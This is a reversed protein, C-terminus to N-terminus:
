QPARQTHRLAGGRQYWTKKTRAAAAPRGRPQVDVSSFGGEGSSHHCMARAHLREEQWVARNFLAREEWWARIGPERARRLRRNQWSKMGGNALLADIADSQYLFYMGGGHRKHSTRPLDDAERSSVVFLKVLASKTLAGQYKAVARLVREDSRCVSLWTKSVCGAAAFALPGVNGALILSVLDTDSVVAEMAAQTRIRKTGAM